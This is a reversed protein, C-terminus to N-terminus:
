GLHLITAGTSTYEDLRVHRDEPKDPLGIFARLIKDMGREAAMLLPNHGADKFEKLVNKFVETDQHKSELRKLASEVQFNGVLM